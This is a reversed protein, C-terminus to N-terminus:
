SSGLACLRFGDLSFVWECLSTHNIKEQSSLLFNIEIMGWGKSQSRSPPGACSYASSYLLTKQWQSGGGSVRIELIPLPVVLVNSFTISFPRSPILRFDRTGTWHEHDQPGGLQISDTEAAAQRSRSLGFSDLSKQWEKWATVRWNHMFALWRVFCSIITKVRECHASALLKKQVVWWRCLHDISQCSKLVTRGLTGQQWQTDFRFKLPWM